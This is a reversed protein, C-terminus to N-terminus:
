ILRLGVILINPVAIFSSNPSTSSDPMKKAMSSIKSSFFRRWIPVYWWSQIIEIIAGPVEGYRLPASSPNMNPMTRHVMNKAQTKEVETGSSENTHVNSKTDTGNM